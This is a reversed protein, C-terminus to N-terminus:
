SSFPKPFLLDAKISAFFDAQPNNQRGEWVNDLASYGTIYVFYSESRHQQREQQPQPTKNENGRMNNENDYYVTITGFTADKMIEMFNTLEGDSLLTKGSSVARLIYRHDEVNQKNLFINFHKERSFQFSIVKNEMSGSNSLSINEQAPTGLRKAVLFPRNGTWHSVNEKLLQPIRDHLFRNGSTSGVLQENAVLRVPDCSHAHERRGFGQGETVFNVHLTGVTVCKDCAYGRFGFIESAEETNTNPHIQDSTQNINSTSPFSFGSQRIQNMHKRAAIRALEKAFEVTQIHNYDPEPEVNSVSPRADYFKQERNPTAADAQKNWNPGQASPFDWNPLCEGIGQHCIQIHRILNSRRSCPKRCSSCTFKPFRM